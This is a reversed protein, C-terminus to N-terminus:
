RKPSLSLSFLADVQELPLRLQRMTDRIRERLALKVVRAVMEVKIAIDIDIRHDCDHSTTQPYPTSPQM